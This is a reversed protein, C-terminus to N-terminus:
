SLIKKLNSLDITKCTWIKKYEAPVSIMKWYCEINLIEQKGYWLWKFLHLGAKKTNCGNEIDSDNVHLAIWYTKWTGTKLIDGERM